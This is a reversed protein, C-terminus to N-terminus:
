CDGIMVSPGDPHSYYSCRGDGGWNGGPTDRQWGGRAAAQHHAAVINVLAPGGEFGANGAADLWYRGPRVPGILQRLLYLEVGPLRRGNIYVGTDGASAQPLLRGGLKLGAQMRGLPPGGDRGWLGSRADYWYRGNPISTGYGAELAALTDQALRVSNVYVARGAASTSAYALVAGALLLIAVMAKRMHAEVIARALKKM